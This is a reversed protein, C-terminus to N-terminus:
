NNHIKFTSKETGNPDVNLLSVEQRQYYELVERAWFGCLVGLAERSVNEARIEGQVVVEHQQEKMM